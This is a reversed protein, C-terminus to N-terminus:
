PVDFLTEPGPTPCWLTMPPALLARPGLAERKRAAGKAVDKLMEDDMPPVHNMYYVGCDGIACIHRVVRKVDHFDVGCALCFSTAVRARLPNNYGHMKHMHTRLAPESAFEAGCVECTFVVDNEEDKKNIKAREGAEAELSRSARAAKLLRSRWARPNAAICDM